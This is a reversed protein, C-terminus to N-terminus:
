PSLAVASEWWSQAVVRCPSRSGAQELLQLVRHWYWAAGGAGSILVFTTMLVQGRDRRGRNSGEEGLCGRAFSGQQGQIARDAMKQRGNTVRGRRWGDHGQRLFHLGHSVRM